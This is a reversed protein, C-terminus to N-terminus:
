QYPLSTCVHYNLRYFKAPLSGASEAPETPEIVKVIFTSIPYNTVCIETLVAHTQAPEEEARRSGEREKYRSEREALDM